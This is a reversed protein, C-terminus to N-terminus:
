KNLYKTKCTIYKWVVPCILKKTNYLKVFHGKLMLTFWNTFTQDTLQRMKEIQEKKKSSSSITSAPFQWYSQKWFWSLTLYNPVQKCIKLGHHDQTKNVKYSEHLIHKRCFYPEHCRWSSDHFEFWLDNFRAKFHRGTNRVSNLVYLLFEFYVIYLTSILSSTEKRM